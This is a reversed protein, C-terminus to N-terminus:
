YRSESVSVARGDGATGCPTGGESRGASALNKRNALLIGHPPEEGARKSGRNEKPNHTTGQERQECGRGEGLGGGADGTIGTDILNTIFSAKRCASIEHGLTWHASHAERDLVRASPSYSRAGNPRRQSRPSTITNIGDVERQTRRISVRNRHARRNRCRRLCKTHISRRVKVRSRQGVIKIEILVLAIPRFKNRRRQTGHGPM